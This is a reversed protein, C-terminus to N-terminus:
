ELKSMIYDGFSFRGIRKESSSTLKFYKKSKILDQTKRKYIFEGNKCKSEVKERVQVDGVGMGRSSHTSKTSELMKCRNLEEKTLKDYPKKLAKYRVPVEKTEIFNQLTGGEINIEKSKSNSNSSGLYLLSPDDAYNWFNTGLRAFTRAALDTFGNYAQVQLKTQLSVIFGEQQANANSCQTEIAKKHSGLSIIYTTPKTHYSQAVAGEKPSFAKDPLVILESKQKCVPIIKLDQGFLNKKSSIWNKAAVRDSGGYFHLLNAAGFAVSKGLNGAILSGVAEAKQKKSKVYRALQNGGPKIVITLDGVTCGPKTNQAGKDLSTNEKKSATGIYPACMENDAQCYDGTCTQGQTGQIYYQDGCKGEDKPKNFDKDPNLESLPRREKKKEDSKIALALKKNKDEIQSCWQPALKNEKVLWVQPLRLNVLAPNITRLITFSGFLLVLGIIAGGIRTKAQKIMNSRGGSVTIQIGSVLIVIVALATGAIMSWRYMYKIFGGIHQFNTKGAFSVETRAHTAPKCFGLQKENLVPCTEKAKGKTYFANNKKAKEKSDWRDYCDSKTFCRPDISRAFSLSPVLLGVALITLLLTRLTPKIQM